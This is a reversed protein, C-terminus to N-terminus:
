TKLTQPETTPLDSPHSSAGNESVGPGASKAASSETGTAAISGSSITGEPVAGSTLEAGQPASASATTVATNATSDHPESNYSGSDYSSYDYNYTDPHYSSTIEKLSENERELSRMERDFTAKLENQARRFEALGKALHKGLEPLKKPGFMLLALLFIFAMEQWGLPGM